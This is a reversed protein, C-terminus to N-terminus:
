LHSCFNAREPPAPSRCVASRRPADRRAFPTARVLFSRHFMMGEFQMRGERGRAILRLRYLFQGLAHQVADARLHKDPDRAAAFRERHRVDNLVDPTGREDDRVVFREGGLEAVLEAGKEGFVAHFIEDGIVIIILGLAIDRLRISVDFFIERHVVLDILEAVGGGTRQALAVVDDDDGGDGADVTEARGLLEEAEADREARPLLHRAVLQEGAEDADLIGAVIHVEFAGGEAYPPVHHLDKGRGIGFDGDAHFKEAVLDVGDALDVDYRALHDAGEFVGDNKGGAVIRHSRLAQLRREGHDLFIELALHLRELVRALEELRLAERLARPVIQLHHALDSVTRAHLVVGAIEVSARGPLWGERQQVIEGFIEEHEDVLAVHGDRLDAGHVVAIERALFVEDIVAEAHLGSVIVAREGELLEVRAHRLHDADGRRGRGVLEALRPLDHFLEDTGRPKQIRGDGDSGRLPLDVIKEGFHVGDDPRAPAHEDGREGLAHRLAEGVIELLVADFHAVHVGVDISQLADVDDVTQTRALEVDQAADVQQALPEVKGFHAEDGNEVGIFLPEQAAFRREHLGDPAGRAVRLPAHDHIGIRERAAHLAGDALGVAAAGYLLFVVFLVVDHGSGDDFFDGFREGDRAFGFFLRIDFLRIDGVLDFFELPEHLRSGRLEIELAGDLYPLPDRLQAFM